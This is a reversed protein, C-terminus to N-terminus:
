DLYGNANYLLLMLEIYIKLVINQEFVYKYLWHFISFSEYSFSSQTLNLNSQSLREYFILLYSWIIKWLIKFENKINFM